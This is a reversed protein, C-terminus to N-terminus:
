TELLVYFLYTISFGQERDTRGDPRKNAQKIEQRSTEDEDNNVSNSHLTTSLYSIFQISWIVIDILKLM